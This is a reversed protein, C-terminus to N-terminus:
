LRIRVGKVDMDQIETFADKKADNSKYLKVNGDLANMVYKRLLRYAQLSDVFGALETGTRTKIFLATDACLRERGINDRMDNMRELTENTGNLEDSLILYKLSEIWYPLVGFKNGTMATFDILYAACNSLEAEKLSANMVDKKMISETIDGSILSSDNSGVPMVTEESQNESSGITNDIDSSKVSRDDFGLNVM